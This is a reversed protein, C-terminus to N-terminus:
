GSRGITADNNATRLLYWPPIGMEWLGGPARPSGASHGIPGGVPRRNLDTLM